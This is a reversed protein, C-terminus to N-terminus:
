MGSLSATATCNRFSAPAILIPLSGTKWPWAFPCAVRVQVVTKEVVLLGSTELGM